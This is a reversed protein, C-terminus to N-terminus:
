PRWTFRGGANTVVVSDGTIKLITSDGITAGELVRTGNKMVLCPYPTTLIGCVPFQPARAETRVGRRAIRGTAPVDSDSDFAADQQEDPSVVRGFKVGSVDVDRLRPLDANLAVLTKKLAVASPALGTVSLVRNTAASVKLAGETLTFLADTAATAFSEDDSLDLEVGPQCEYAEATAALREARTRFNGSLTIRGADNTLALGYKAALAPLSERAPVDGGGPCLSERDGRVRKWLEEVKPRLADKFFWAFGLLILLLVILWLLCGLCGHRRKTASKESAPEAPPAERGEDGTKRGEDDAAREGAPEEAVPATEAQPWVLEGWAADSPGVAFATSGASKVHYPEIREGDLTVGSATVEVTFPADPMTPDALVIDCEDAKGFTVAIGEVLAIEAGKNPGEVIKLLFNM